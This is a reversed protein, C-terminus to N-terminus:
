GGVLQHRSQACAVVGGRKLALPQQCQLSRQGAGSLCFLRLNGRVEGAAVCGGHNDDQTFVRCWARNRFGVELQM